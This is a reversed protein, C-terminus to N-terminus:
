YNTWLPCWDSHIKSKLKTAGCECTPIHITFRKVFKYGAVAYKMADVLHDYKQVQIDPVSDDDCSPTCAVGAPAGCIACAFKGVEGTM